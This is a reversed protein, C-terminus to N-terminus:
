NLIFKTAQGNVNLVYINNKTLSPHIIASSNKFNVEGKYQIKGSLSYISVNEVQESPYQITLENIGGFVKIASAAFENTLLISVTTFSLTFRENLSISEATVNVPISSGAKLDYSKGNFADHLTVILDDEAFGEFQAVNIQYTGIERLNVGLKVNLQEGDNLKPLGQIAMKDNGLLSHFSIDENGSFKTADLGYDKDLTAGEVLGVILDNRLNNGAISLKLIQNQETSKRYFNADANAGATSVQMVAKFLVNTASAEAQVFFGQMSAINGTNAATAGKSGAVGDGLDTTSVTTGLNNVTIYDGGRDTGVNAGGDDWLYIAGTTNTTNASENLFNAISIPAAFPNAVINFKDGNTSVPISKSGTVLAGTLAIEPSAADYSVFYGKGLTMAGTPVTWNSGDWTYLHNANLNSLNAGIVPTGVISYGANGTTNRKVTATGDGSMAGLLVLSGGSEVIVSGQNVGDNEATITVGLPINLVGSPAISIDNYTSDKDLTTTATVTLSALGDEYAGADPSGDRRTVGRADVTPLTIGTVTATCYNIATAGTPLALVRVNGGKNTLTTELGAFSATKGRVNNREAVDLFSGNASELGGLICNVVETTNTNAFNLAKQGTADATVVISNYISFNTNAGSPASTFQIGNKAAAAHSNNYMTAHVMKLTVNGTTNDGTWLACLSWIGGGGAGGSGSTTTNNAITVNEIAVSIKNNNGFDKNGNIYVGGGNRGSNSGVLSGSILIDSDYTVGNNPALLMGGGDLTSTNNVISCEYMKVRSGAASIGGGNKATANETIIVNMFTVFGRNKDIAIGGGNEADNGYRITLNEVSITLSDVPDAITIVRGDATGASAAAQIIDNAPNSGRLTISKDSFAIKETHIGTIDIVDGNVAATIAEGITSYTTAGISVTQALSTFVSGVSFL